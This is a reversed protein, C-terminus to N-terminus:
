HKRLYNIAKELLGINDKFHGLAFNCSICLLGRVEGTIHDHDVNLSKTCDDEHVNCILCSYDQSVLMSTYDDYTIGYNKKLRTNAVQRPNAKYWAKARSSVKDKRSDDYAIYQYNRCPICINRYGHKSGKDIVFGKLDEATHASKDCSPCTRLAEM